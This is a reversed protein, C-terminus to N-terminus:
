VGFLRCCTLVLCFFFVVPLLHSDCGLCSAVPSFNLVRGLFFLVAVLLIVLWVVPLLHSGSCCALVLGVFCSAVPLIALWVVLLLHFGSRFFFSEVPFIVLRVVPLPSAMVDSTVPM